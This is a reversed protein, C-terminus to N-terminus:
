ISVFVLVGRKNCISAPQERAYLLGSRVLGCDRVAHFPTVIAVDDDVNIAYLKVDEPM